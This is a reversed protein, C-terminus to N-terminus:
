KKHLFASIKQAALQLIELEKVLAFRVYGEGSKGFGSGPSVAVGTEAVLQICFKVSDNQWAEPLKAWIYM